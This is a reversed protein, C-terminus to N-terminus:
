AGPERPSTLAFTRIESRIPPQGDTSILPTFGARGWNIVCHAHAAITTTDSAVQVHNNTSQFTYDGQNGGSAATM